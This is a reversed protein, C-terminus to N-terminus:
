DSVCRPLQTSCSNEDLCEEKVGKAIESVILHLALCCDLNAPLIWPSINCCGDKERVNRTLKWWSSARLGSGGLRREEIKRGLVELTPRVTDTGRAAQSEGAGPTPKEWNHLNPWPSAPALFTPVPLESGSLRRSEPPVLLRRPAPPGPPSRNPVLQVPSFRSAAGPSKGM